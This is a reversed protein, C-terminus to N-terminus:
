IQQRIADIKQANAATFYMRPKCGNKPNGEPSFENFFYDKIPELNNLVALTESYGDSDKCKRPFLHKLGDFTPSVNLLLNVVLHHYSYSMVDSAVVRYGSKRLAKSFLGTGAMLDIVSHANPCDARFTRIITESLKEKSGIYRYGM